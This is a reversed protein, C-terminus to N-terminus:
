LKPIFNTFNESIKLAVITKYSNGLIINICYNDDSYNLGLIVNQSQLNLIKKMTELITDNCFNASYKENFDMMTMYQNM